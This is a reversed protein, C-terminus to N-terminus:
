FRRYLNQKRCKHSCFVGFAGAGWLDDVPGGCTKCVKPMELTPGDDNDTNNVNNGDSNVNNDDSNVNNDYTEVTAENVFEGDSTEVTAENVFEGDSDELMKRLLESVYDDEVTEDVLQWEDEVVGISSAGTLLWLEAESPTGTPTPPEPWQMIVQHQDHSSSWFLRIRSSGLCCVSLM